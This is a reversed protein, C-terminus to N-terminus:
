IPYFLPFDALHPLYQWLRSILPYFISNVRNREYTKFSSLLIFLTNERDIPLSITASYRLASCACHSAFLRCNEQLASLQIPILRIPLLPVWEPFIERVGSGRYVMTTSRDTARRRGSLGERDIRRTEERKHAKERRTPLHPTTSTTTLASTSDITWVVEEAMCTPGTLM